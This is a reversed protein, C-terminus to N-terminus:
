QDVGNEAVVPHLERSRWRVYMMASCFMLVVAVMGIISLANTYDAFLSVVLRMFYLLSVFCLWIYSRLNDRAMGPVFIALPLLVALWIIWPAGLSWVEALQQLFLVAFSIWALLRAKGALTKM